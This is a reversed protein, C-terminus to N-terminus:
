DVVMVAGKFMNMGCAFSADVNRAPTFDIDVPQNLPLARKLESRRFCSKQRM